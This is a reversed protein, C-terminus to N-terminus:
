FLDKIYSKIPKQFRFYNGLLEYINRDLHQLFFLEATKSLLSFRKTVSNRYQMMDYSTLHLLPKKVLFFKLGRKSAEYGLDTDEFGYSVYYKKFLGLDFFNSKSIGLAYTCTYKWFNPLSQWNKSFFLESWYEKEEIYTDKKTDVESYNPNRKSLEQHLHFRQFQIVDNENLHELASQIFDVPTLMDSDLFLLYKGTSYRAALNRALGPRFFQQEGRVPHIKSWYIYKFNIENKYNEFLNFIIESSSDTSGDDAVLIEYQEKPTNQNILHWLVNGLFFANNFTPIIISIIPKSHSKSFNWNIKYSISDIPQLEHHKPINSNYIEFGNLTKYQIKTNSIEKVTLSNKLRSQYPKFMWFIEYSESNNAYFESFSVLDSKVTPMLLLHKTPNEDKGSEHLISLDDKTQICLICRDATIERSFQQHNTSNTLVFDQDRLKSKFFALVLDISKLKADISFILSKKNNQEAKLLRRQFTTESIDSLNEIEYRYFSNNTSM